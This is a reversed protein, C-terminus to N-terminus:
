WISIQSSESSPNWLKLPKFNPSQTEGLNDAGVVMRVRNLTTRVEQINCFASEVGGWAPVSNTQTIRALQCCKVQYLADRPDWRYLGLQAEDKIKV